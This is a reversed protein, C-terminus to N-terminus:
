NTTPGKHLRAAHASYLNMVLKSQMRWMCSRVLRGIIVIIYEVVIDVMSCAGSAHIIVQMQMTCAELKCRRVVLLHWDCNCMWYIVVVMIIIFILSNLTWVIIWLLYVFVFLESESTREFKRIPARYSIHRVHTALTWEDCLFLCVRHCHFNAAHHLFHFIIAAGLRRLANM